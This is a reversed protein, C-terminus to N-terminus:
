RTSNTRGLSAIPRLLLDAFRRNCSIITGDTTLTAAPHPMQAVLLWYAKDASELTFVQEGGAEVLVADAEGTRLARLADEAEELRRRLDKNEQLLQDIPQTTM